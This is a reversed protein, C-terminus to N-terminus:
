ARSVAKMSARSRSGGSSSTSAPEEGAIVRQARGHASPIRGSPGAVIVPTLVLMVRCPVRRTLFAELDGLGLGAQVLILDASVAGPVPVDRQGNQRV